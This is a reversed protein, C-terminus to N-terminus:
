PRVTGQDKDSQGAGKLRALGRVSRVAAGPRNRRGARVGPQHVAHCPRARRAGRRCQCPRRRAATGCLATRVAVANPPSSPTRRYPLAWAQPTAPDGPLRGACVSRFYWAPDASSMAAKLVAHPDWEGRDVEPDPLTFASAIASTDVLADPDYDPNVAKMVKQLVSRAEDANTLGQTQPLRSLAAQVGDANPASSPSYKYPLAWADQTSPDGAKRGACIGRYFAAPDDSAAGAKWAKGADWATHDVEAMLLPFMGALASATSPMPEPEHSTVNPKPPVPKLSNGDADWYDHDTDSAATSDDDGDGDPDFRVEGDPDVVWGDGIDKPEVPSGGASTVEPGANQVQVGASAQPPGNDDPADTADTEDQEPMPKGCSSCTKADPQNYKSCNPCKRGAPAANQPAKAFVSLDWEAAPAQEQGLISDALGDAVATKDTYWTEAAMKALWFDVPKGTREAYISAIETTIEDLLDATKRLDSADGIAMSFGNHVMMQAHPAIQLKGKSAAQAIFSAASAALGDIVVSVSGPRQKLQNYIAIGDHVDGGPSNIHLEIDGNVGKLDAMFQGAAVGYFGIEDYISVQTPVGTVANAIHYWAPRQGLSNSLRRTSRLPRAGYEM